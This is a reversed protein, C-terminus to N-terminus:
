CVGPPMNIKKMSYINKKYTQKKDMFCLSIKMLGCLDPKDNKSM